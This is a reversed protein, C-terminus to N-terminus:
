LRPRFSDILKKLVFFGSDSYSLPPYRVALTFELGSPRYMVSRKHSFTEFGHRGHYGGGVGSQGVGGFPLSSVAMAMLLDNVMANGSTTSNLIHTFVKKNQSFIYLALPSDRIVFPHSEDIELAIVM